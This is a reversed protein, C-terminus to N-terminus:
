KVQKKLEGVAAKYKGLVAECAAADGAHEAKDLDKFLAVVEKCGKEVAERSDASALAPMGECLKLIRKEAGHTAAHDKAKISGELKAILAELRAVAEKFTAPVSSPFEFGKANRTEGKIKFIVVAQFEPIAKIDIEAWFFPTGDDEARAGKGSADHPNHVVFEVFYGGSEVVAGGHGLGFRKEAKPTVLETNITKPPQGPRDFTVKVEVDAPDVLKKDKDAIYVRIETGHANPREARAVGVVALVLSMGILSTKMRRREKEFPFKRNM